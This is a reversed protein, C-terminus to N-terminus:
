CGKAQCDLTHNERTQILARLEKWHKSATLQTISYSPYGAWLLRQLEDWHNEELVLPPPFSLPVPLGLILQFIDMSLPPPPLQTCDPPVSSISTCGYCLVVSLCNTLIVLSLYAISYSKCLITACPWSGPRSM